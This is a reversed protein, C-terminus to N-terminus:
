RKPSTITSSTVTFGPNEFLGLHRKAARAADRDLAVRFDDELSDMFRVVDQITKASDEIYKNIQMFIGTRSTCFGFDKETINQTRRGSNIIEKVIIRFAKIQVPREYHTGKYDFAGRWSTMGKYVEFM